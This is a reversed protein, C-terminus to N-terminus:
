HALLAVVLLAAAVAVVQLLLLLLLSHMLCAPVSGVCRIDGHVHHKLDNMQM